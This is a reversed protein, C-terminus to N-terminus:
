SYTLSARLDWINDYNTNGDAFTITIDGGSEVLKKVLWVADATLSGAAARGVYSTGTGLDDLLIAFETEVDNYTLPVGSANFPTWKSGDYEVSEGAALTCKFIEAYISGDYLQITVVNSDTADKNKISVFKIQRQTSAVPSTVITTNTATTIANNTRGGVFTTSTIDAWSVHVDIDATTSTVLRLIDSTSTLLV